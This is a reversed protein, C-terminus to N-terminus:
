ACGGFLSGKACDALDWSNAVRGACVCFRYMLAEPELSHLKTDKLREQSVVCSRGNPPTFKRQAPSKQREGRRTGGRQELGGEAFPRKNQVCPSSPACRKNSSVFSCRQTSGHSLWTSKCARCPRSDWSTHHKRCPKGVSRAPLQDGFLPWHSQWCSQHLANATARCRSVWDPLGRVHSTRTLSSHLTRAASCARRRM